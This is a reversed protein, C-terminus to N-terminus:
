IFKEQSRALLAMKRMDRETLELAAEVWREGIRILEDYTVQHYYNDLERIATFANSYRKRHEVYDAAAINGQGDDALVDVIGFDYMEQATYIKQESAIIRKALAPSVRRILYSYAGMGPFLNFLREPFGFTASKEAIITSCSLAAEFGGGFAIGQVVAVKELLPQNSTLMLVDICARMYDMLGDRDHTKILQTFLDLDGGLNFVGKIQSTLLLHTPPLPLNNLREQASKLEALITPNFCPRGVPNLAITAINTEPNYHYDLQTYNDAEISQLVFSM